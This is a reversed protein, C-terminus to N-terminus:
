EINRNINASQVIIKNPASFRRRSLPFEYNLENEDTLTSLFIKSNNIYKLRDGQLKFGVKTIM